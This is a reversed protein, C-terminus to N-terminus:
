GGSGARRTSLPVDPGVKAGTPPVSTIQPPSNGTPSAARVTVRIDTVMQLGSGDVAGLRIAVTQNVYAASPTWSLVGTTANMTAGAPLGAAYYTLPTGEPYYGENDLTWAVGVDIFRPVRLPELVPPRDDSAGVVSLTFEQRTSANGHSASLVIQHAGLQQRTPTWSLVGTSPDQTMGSPIVDAHVPLQQTGAVAVAQYTYTLGAQVFTIPTSTFRPADPSGLVTILFTQEVSGLTTTAEITVEHTGVDEIGPTWSILGTSDVTMGDPPLDVFDFSATASPDQTWVKARHSFENGAVVTHQTPQSPLMPAPPETNIFNLLKRQFAVGGRGDRAEVQIPFVVPSQAYGGASLAGATTLTGYNDVTEHFTVPDGDPDWATYQHQIFNWLSSPDLIKYPKPANTFVPPHNTCDGQATCTGTGNCAVGVALPVHSVGSGASCTDQTCANGDDISPPDQRQCSLTGGMSCARVLTVADIGMYSAPQHPPISYPTFNLLLKDGINAPAVFELAVDVWGTTPATTGIQGLTADSPRPFATSYVASLAVSYGGPAAIDVRAAQHLKARLRYRQGPVLPERLEQAFSELVGGAVGAVWRVGDPVSQVNNFNGNYTPLLGWSGDMSYTDPTSATTWWDTPLVGQQASSPTSVTEFSSNVLLNESELCPVCLEIGNCSNGDSCSAGSPLDAHTVGGAESCADTTCPNNDEVILASRVCQGASCTESGNCLIGDSCAAQTVVQGNLCVQASGPSCTGSYDEDVSGDCDDDLGNCTTDQSAAPTGPVCSDAVQGAACSRIGTRACVGLGCTTPQVAFDEDVAGDCDSDAGDCLADTTSLAPWPVCSQTLQGAVCASAGSNACVGLGCTVPTAAFDDDVAGDCDDDIGNCNTDETAPAPLPVCQGAWVGGACTATATTSCAGTGCTVEFSLADEDAVGDCDDDRGDCTLDAQAPLGPRCTDALQGASCVQVGAAECAGIGCRTSGGLFDEDVDGDCDTDVGDCTSDSGAAAGPQCFEVVQGAVCSRSGQRACAGTGCSIVATPYDEDATGNCDDDVGDCDADSAAPTGPQCSKQVQGAVCSTVGVTACAGLGCTTPVSEYNEDSTGDCDDDAGDCTADGGAPTGSTCSDQVSGNVCSTSGTRACGGTGCNTSQSAYNDDAVGDCDDDVGDCDTDPGAPTCADMGADTGGDIGADPPAVCSAQWRLCPYGDVSSMAWTNTFDWGQGALFTQSKLNATTEGGENGCDGAVTCDFFSGIVDGGEGIDGYIRGEDGTGVAYSRELHADYYLYDCLLGGQWEWDVTLRSYSDRLIGEHKLFGVVGGSLHGSTSGTAYVERILTGETAGVVAGVAEYGVISVDELGVREIVAAGALGFLGVSDELPRNITLNRIIHGNGDFHGEFPTYVWGGVGVPRFGKGDADPDFNLCDVDQALRYDGSLDNEMAQLQACTQIETVLAQSREGVQPALESAPDSRSCSAFCALVVVVLIGLAAHARTRVSRDTV